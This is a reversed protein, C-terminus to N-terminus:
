WRDFPATPEVASTRAASACPRVAATAPQPSVPQAPAQSEPPYYGHPLRGFLVVAARVSDTSEYLSPYPATQARPPPQPAAASDQCASALGSVLAAIALGHLFAPM